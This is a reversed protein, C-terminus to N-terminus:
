TRSLAYSQFVMAMPRKDPTVSLMSTGDLEVDGQTPTEFGAIIRLTTTKGCGSPGPLTVFEGPAIDLDIGDLAKFRSKKSAFEKTLNSIQLHGNQTKV